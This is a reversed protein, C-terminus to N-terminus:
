NKTTFSFNVSQNGNVVLEVGATECEGEAEAEELNPFASSLAIM